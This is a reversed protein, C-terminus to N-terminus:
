AAARPAAAPAEAGDAVAAAAAEVAEVAGAARPRALRRVAAAGWTLSLLLAAVAEPWRMAAASAAGAALLAVALVADGIGTWRRDM